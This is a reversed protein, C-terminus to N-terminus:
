EQHFICVIDEDNLAVFVEGTYPDEVQKGSFRAYAVYDGIVIPSTTNFDRFATAGIAVVKGKDVSAQARKMDEHEPLVMGLERVKVYTKDTDELKDQKVLIRHLAPVIM